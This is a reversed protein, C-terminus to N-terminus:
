DPIETTQLMVHYINLVMMSDTEDLSAYVKEASVPKRSNSFMM